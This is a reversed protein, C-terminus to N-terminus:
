LEVGPIKIVLLKLESIMAQFNTGEFWMIIHNSASTHQTMSRHDFKSQTSVEEQRSNSPPNMMSYECLKSSIQLTTNLTRYFRQALCLNDINLSKRLDVSLAIPQRTSPLPKSWLLLGLSPGTLLCPDTCSYIMHQYTHCFSGQMKVRIENEMEHEKKIAEESVSPAGPFTILVVSM